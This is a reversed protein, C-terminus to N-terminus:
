HLAAELASTQTSRFTQSVGAGPRVLDFGHFAGQVIYLECRVGAERLRTAYALDEDYFLDSSGVGIWAPPLGSLDDSRSPSALGSVANSGPSFGTYSRWGFDNAKNNWLRFGREDLDTRVATRDDLMPYSLMQFALPVEGRERALLALAAALGGGASAGGVAVRTADVGRQRTLWTLAEYCDDLAAPFPHEPALRYEVAAVVIGLQQAFHRCVADDQAASGIVYGGGHIWLLAPRPHESKSSAPQHVRVSVLGVPRVAVGKAPIAGLARTGMRVFRLTRPSVGARPLWRAIRRLDPHFADGAQVHLKTAQRARPSLTAAATATVGMTALASMIGPVSNLRRTVRM